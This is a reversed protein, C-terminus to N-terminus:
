LRLGQAAEGAAGANEAQHPLAAEGGDEGFPLPIRHRGHAGCLGRTPLPRVRRDRLVDTGPQPLRGRLVLRDEVIRSRRGRGAGAREARAVAAGVQHVAGDAGGARDGQPLPPPQRHPGMTLADERQLAGQGIQFDIYENGDIDWLRAGKGHDVFVTEDDGWYRFNSSVGLPLHKVAEKFHARSKDLKRRQVKISM